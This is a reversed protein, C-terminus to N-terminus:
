NSTRLNNAGSSVTVKGYCLFKGSHLDFKYRGTSCFLVHHFMSLHWPPCWQESPFGPYLQAKGHLLPAPRTGINIGLADNMLATPLTTVRGVCCVGLIIHQTGAVTQRALFYILVKVICM